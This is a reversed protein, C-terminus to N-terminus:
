YRNQQYIYDNRMKFYGYDDGSSELMKFLEEHVSKISIRVDPNAIWCKQM